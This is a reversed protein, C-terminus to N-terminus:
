NDYYSQPQGQGMYGGQKEYYQQQEHEVMALQHAVAKRVKQGRAWSQIKVVHHENKKAAAM